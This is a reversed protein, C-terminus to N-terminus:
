LNNGKMVQMAADRILTLAHLVHLSNEVGLQALMQRVVALSHEHEELFLDKQTKSLRVPTSRKDGATQVREILGKEELSRLTRNMLSKAMGTANCLQTPTMTDPDQGSIRFLHNCIHAENYPLTQVIRSNNIATSVDIWLTLLKNEM